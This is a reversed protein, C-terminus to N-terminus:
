VIPEDELYNYNLTFDTMISYCWGHQKDDNAIRFDFYVYTGHEYEDTAVKPMKHRQFWANYKRHYRWSQKKLEKAAVYQQYTNQQYYFAFFLTDFYYPELGVKEWFAPNYVIPAQVKPFSPPTITPHKPTYARPRESDKPQPLKHHAVELMQFNYLQDRVEGSNATLASFNDGFNDGVPGLDTSNRGIVGLNATLADDQTIEMNKHTHTYLM